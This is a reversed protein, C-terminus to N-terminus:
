ESGGQLRAQSGGTVGIRGELIYTGTPAGLGALACFKGAPCPQCEAISGLGSQPGYTGVPCSHQTAVATGLPCYYGQPCPYLSFDQIPGASSDCYYGPWSHPISPVTGERLLETGAATRDCPAQPRLGPCQRGPARLRWRAGEGAGEPRQQREGAPCQGSPAQLGAEKCYFGRPCAQCVSPVTQAPLSSFTGPPCLAPRHSAAAPPVPLGCTPCCTPLRRQGGEGLGPEKARRCCTSLGVHLPM